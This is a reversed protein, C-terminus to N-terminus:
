CSVPVLMHWQRNLPEVLCVATSEVQSLVQPGLLEQLAAHVLAHITLAM